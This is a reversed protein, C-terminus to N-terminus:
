KGTFWFVIKVLNVNTNSEQETIFHKDYIKEKNGYVNETIDYFM